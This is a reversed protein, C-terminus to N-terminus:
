GISSANCDSVWKQQFQDILIQKIVNLIWKENEVNHTLWVYSLGCEHLINQICEVWKSNYNNHQTLSHLFTYLIYSMKSEKGKM